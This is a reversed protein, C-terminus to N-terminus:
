PQPEALIEEILQMTRANPGLWHLQEWATAIEECLVRGHVGPWLKLAKTM